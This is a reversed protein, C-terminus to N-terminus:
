SYAVKKIIEQALRKIMDFNGTNVAEKCVLAGSLGVAFVGAKFFDAVNNIDVGGTPILKLHPLPGRINKIFNPGGLNSIPFVKILQAGHNYATMMETPTSTGPVAVVNNNHCFEILDKDTHPSIVFKAGAKIAQNALEINLATGAGILIHPYKNCLTEIIELAGGTNLTIEVIKLGGEICAVAANYATDQSDERVIAVLKDKKIRELTEKM